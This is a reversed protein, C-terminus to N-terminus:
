ARDGNPLARLAPVIRDINNHLLCLLEGLEPTVYHAVEVTLDGGNHKATYRVHTFHDTGDKYTHPEEEVRWEQRHQSSLQRLRDALERNDM